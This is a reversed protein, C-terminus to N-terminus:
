RFRLSFEIAPYISTYSHSVDSQTNNVSSESISVAHYNLSVGFYFKKTGKMQVGISGLYSTGDVDESAGSRKRDGKAYFNYVGSIYFNRSDNFFFIVRPGLELLSIEEDSSLSTAGISKSSMIISQGIVWKGDSGFKAGLVFSNRMAAYKSNESSDSDTDTQYNFSHQFYFGAHASHTVVVLLLAFYLIRKVM